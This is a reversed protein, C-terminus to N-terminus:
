SMNQTALRWPTGGQPRRSTLLLVRGRIKTWLHASELNTRRSFGDICACPRRPWRSGERGSPRLSHDGVIGVCTYNSVWCMDTLSAESGGSAPPCVLVCRQDLMHVSSATAFGFIGLARLQQGSVVTLPQKSSAHCKLAVRVGSARRMSCVVSRDPYLLAGLLPFFGLSHM